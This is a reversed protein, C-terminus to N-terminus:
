STSYFPRILLFMSIIIGLIGASSLWHFRPFLVPYDFTRRPFGFIGLSHMPFFIPNSSLFSVLFHLRGLLDISYFSSFFIYYNYFAAFITYVAGLPLVYHSHGVVFYPDHLLSDIIRNALILGTFGGFSFSSLFGIVFFFPTILFFRGSWPTAFWNLIKIGTPIAIITTAPTSYARPDIDPGVMFM